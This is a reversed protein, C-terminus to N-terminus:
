RGIGLSVASRTTIRHSQLDIRAIGGVMPYRHHCGRALAAKWCPVAGIVLQREDDLTPPIRGTQEQLMEVRLAERARRAVGM